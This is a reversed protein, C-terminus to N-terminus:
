KKGKSNGKKNKQHKKAQEQIEEVTLENGEPSFLNLKDLGVEGKVLRENDRDSNSRAREGFNYIKKNPNIGLDPMRKRQEEDPQWIKGDMNIADKLAESDPTTRIDRQIDIQDLVDNPHLQDTHTTIKHGGYSTAKSASFSTYQTDKKYKPKGHVHGFATTKSLENGTPKLGETDIHSKHTGHKPQKSHFPFDDYRTLTENLNPKGFLQNNGGDRKDEAEQILTATDHSDNHKAVEQWDTEELEPKISETLFRNNGGHRFDEAEQIANAIRFDPIKQKGLNLPLFKSKDLIDNKKDNKTSYNLYHSKILEFTKRPDKGGGGMGGGKAGLKTVGMRLMCQIPPGSLSAAEGTAPSVGATGSSQLNGLNHGFREAREQWAALDPLDIPRAESPIADSSRRKGLPASGPSIQRAGAKLFTKM